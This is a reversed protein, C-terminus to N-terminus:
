HIRRERFGCGFGVARARSLTLHLSRLVPFLIDLTTVNRLKSRIISALRCAMVSIDPISEDCEPRKTLMPRV